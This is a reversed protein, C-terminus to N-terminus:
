VYFNMILVIPFTKILRRTSVKGATRGSFTGGSVEIETGLPFGKLLNFCFTKRRCAAGKIFKEKFTGLLAKDTM